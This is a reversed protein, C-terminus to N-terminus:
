RLYHKKLETTSVDCMPYGLAKREKRAAWTVISKKDKGVLKCGPYYLGAAAHGHGCTYHNVRIFKFPDV